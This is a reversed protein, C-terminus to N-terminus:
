DNYRLMVWAAEVLMKRLLQPGNRTIHGFRNTVPCM